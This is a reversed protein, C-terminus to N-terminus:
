PTYSNSGRTRNDYYHNAEAKSVLHQEIWFSELGFTPDKVQIGQIKLQTEDSPM